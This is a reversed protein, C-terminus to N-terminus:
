DKGDSRAARGLRESAQYEQLGIEPHEFMWDSTEILTPAAQEVERRLAAKLENTDM